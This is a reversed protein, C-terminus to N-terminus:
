LQELCSCRKQFYSEKILGRLYEDMIYQDEQNFMELSLIVNSGFKNYLEELIKLQLAHAISDTHEEGFILM